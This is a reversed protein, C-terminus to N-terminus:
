PALIAALKRLDEELRNFASLQRLPAFSVVFEPVLVAAERVDFSARRRGLKGSADRLAAHLRSKPDPLAELHKMKPIQLDQTGNPNAAARRIAQEDFLLWAETMRIPVVRVHPIDFGGEALESIADGIERHRMESDQNDADRHVFLIDCPFIEVATKIRGAMSQECLESKALFERGITEPRHTERILWDLIALLARDTTGEAFLTFQIHRM